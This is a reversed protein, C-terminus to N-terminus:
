YRAKKNQMKKVKPSNGDSDMKRIPAKDDM